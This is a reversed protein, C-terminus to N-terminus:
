AGARGVARDRAREILEFGNMGMLIAAVFVM